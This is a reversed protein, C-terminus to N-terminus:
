LPLTPSCELLFIAVNDLLYIPRELCCFIRHVVFEVGDALIAEKHWAWVSYEADFSRSSSRYRIHLSYNNRDCSYLRWLALRSRMFSTALDVSLEFMSTHIKRVTWYMDM